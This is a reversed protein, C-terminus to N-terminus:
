GSRELLLSLQDRIRRSEAVMRSSERLLQHVYGDSSGNDVLVTEFDEFSQERLSSLCLNLYRSGKWNPVV